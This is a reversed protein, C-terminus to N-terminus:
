LYSAIAAGVMPADEIKPTITYHINRQRVLLEDLERHIIEAFSIVETKYYTSGDINIAIPSTEEFGKGSKIAFAALHVASLTAAREFIPLVLRRAFKLDSPNIIIKEIHNLKATDLEGIGSITNATCASFLGQKAASKLVELGLPGLYAGAIQKELLNFGPNGSREDVVKDFTSLSLKNFGGSEANIIISGEVYAVNTGTGLVFGIYSSYDHNKEIAKIALLTAVTDNIVAIRGLKTRASLEKGVLCNVVQPARINKVWRLLKADLNPTTKAPYSFCWGLRDGSSISQLRWVEQAFANFFEEASVERDSGPMPFSKKETIKLPLEVIGSRFNTGGADLVMTRINKPILAKADIHSPIM